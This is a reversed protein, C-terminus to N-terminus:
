AVTDFLLDLPSRRRSRGGSLAYPNSNLALASRQRGTSQSAASEIDLFTGSNVANNGNRTPVAFPLVSAPTSGQFNSALQIAQSVSSPNIDQTRSAQPNVETSTSIEPTVRRADPRPANTRAGSAKNREEIRQAEQRELDAARQAATNPNLRQIRDLEALRQANTEQDLVAQTGARGLIRPDTIRNQGAPLGLDAALASNSRAIASGLGLRDRAAIQAIGYNSAGLSQTNAIGFQLAADGSLGNAKGVAHAGRIEGRAAHQYLSEQLALGDRATQYQQSVAKFLGINAENALIRGRVFGGM